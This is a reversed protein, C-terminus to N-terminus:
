MGRVRARERLPLPVWNPHLTTLPYAAPGGSPASILAWRPDPSGTGGTGTSLNAQVVQSGGAVCAPLTVVQTQAVAESAGIIVTLALALGLVGWDRAVRVLGADKAINFQKCLEVFATM